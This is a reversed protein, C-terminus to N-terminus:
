PNGYLTRGDPTRVCTVDPAPRPCPVVDAPVGVNPGSPVVEVDSRVDNKLLVVTPAPAQTGESKDNNGSSCGGVLVAAGLAAGILERRM